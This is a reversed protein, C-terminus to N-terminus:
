HALSTVEPASAGVQPTTGIRLSWIPREKCEKACWVCTEGMGIPGTSFLGKGESAGRHMWVYFGGPTGPPKTLM